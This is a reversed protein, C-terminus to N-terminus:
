YPWHDWLCQQKLCFVSGGSKIFESTDLEIPIFGHARLAACTKLNGEQLLVHKQDPCHANCAFGPSDAENLEVEILRPFLRELILWGEKTFGARCALASQEDLLSLCTDLHYFKPNRLEFLVISVGTIAQLSEYISRDTRFGYGGCILQRGPVWLADGMGEFCSQATRPVLPYTRVGHAALQEALLSVELQRSDERMNSLVVAPSGDRDLFPFSQNACFVMDPCDRSSDFQQPNFGIHEYASVLALWQEKARTRDITQLQGAEDLMHPNIAALVDFGDPKVMFLSKGHPMPPYDGAAAQTGSKEDWISLDM